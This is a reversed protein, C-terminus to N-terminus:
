FGFLKPVSGVLLMIGSFLLLVLVMIRFAQASFRRYLRIGILTPIFLAPVILVFDRLAERGILGLGLYMVITLAAMGLNFSQFVARQVDRDWGRLTCWLIPAPGTLGALGGMAGGILGAVGDAVRGGFRIPRLDRALLMGASWATLLAGIAAKFTTQDIYPLLLAGIPVGVVGGIIFPVVLGLALTRRVMRVALLQGILSGFVVMPGALQAPVAWAWFAMAVLGFAFGSLGQVLGGAVAGLVILM